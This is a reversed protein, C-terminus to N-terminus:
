FSLNKFLLLFTTLQEFSLEQNSSRVVDGFLYGVRDSSVLLAHRGDRYSEKLVTTPIPQRRPRDAATGRQLFCQLRCAQILLQIM